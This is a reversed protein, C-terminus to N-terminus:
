EPEASYGRGVVMRLARHKARFVVPQEDIREGDISFRMPPQSRMELTRVQRYIIQDSELYDNLAFQLTLAAFELITGDRILVVDLLGDEISARPAVQLHGANTRGNAVIINWLTISLPEEDDFTLVVAYSELDTLVGIAGRLYCLPGWTQKIEDTLADTVRDSNGGAAVNAFCRRQSQTQLEVLDVCRRAGSVLLELAQDLEDPIGLTLAFDNATGIPVIGMTVDVEDRADALGAMIGNAVSNVTGDGGAAVILQFGDHVAQKSARVADDSSSTEYFTAPPHDAFHRHVAKAAGARGSNPNFLVLTKPM